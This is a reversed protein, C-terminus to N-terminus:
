SGGEMAAKMMRLCKQLRRHVAWRSLGVIEGIEAASLEQNYRLMLLERDFENIREMAQEVLMRDLVADAESDCSLSSEIDPKATDLDITVPKRYSDICLNRAITYLYALQKGTEKYTHNSYFRVFTDQVIDEALYKDHTKSYCYRLLKDYLEEIDMSLIEGEVVILESAGYNHPIQAYFYLGLSQESSKLTM